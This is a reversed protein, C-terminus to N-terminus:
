CRGQAGEQTCCGEPEEAAEIPTTRAQLQAARPQAAQPQAQSPQKRSPRHPRSSYGALSCSSRGWASVAEACMSNSRAFCLRSLRDRHKEASGSHVFRGYHKRQGSATTRIDDEEKPRGGLRRAGDGVGAVLRVPPKITDLYSVQTRTVHCVSAHQM